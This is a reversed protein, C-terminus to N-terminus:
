PGEWETIKRRVIECPYQVREFGENAEGQTDFVRHIWGDKDRLAYQFQWEGVTDRLAAVYEDQIPNKETM